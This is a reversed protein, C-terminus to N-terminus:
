KVRKMAEFHIKSDNIDFVNRVQYRGKTYLEGNIIIHTAELIIISAIPRSLRQNGETKLLPIEGNLWYNRQGKKLFPYIQGSMLREPICEEKKRAGKEFESYDRLALDPNFEVQIGM